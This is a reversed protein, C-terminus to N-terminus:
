EGPARQVLSRRRRLELFAAQGAPLHITLLTYLLGKGRLLMCAPACHGLAIRSSSLRQALTGALAQSPTRKKIQHGLLPPGGAPGAAPPQGAPPCGRPPSASRRARSRARPAGGPSRAATQGSRWARRPAGSRRPCLHLWGRDHMARQSGKGKPRKHSAQGHPANHMLM